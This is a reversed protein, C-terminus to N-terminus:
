NRDSKALRDLMGCHRRGSALEPGSIRRSDVRSGVPIRRCSRPIPLWRTVLLMALGMGALAVTAPEAVASSSGFNEKLISLDTLDVNGSQNTDGSEGRTVTAGFNDRLINFDTLDIRGDRNFDGPLLPPAALLTVEGTVYLQTLDWEYPSVVTFVGVPAVGNWDFLDLTHGVQAAADAQKSFALDLKGGLTTVTGAAFSITSDWADADFVLQIASDSSMSLHNRITVPIPARPLTWWQHPLPGSLGDDDRVVMHEGPKLDLGEVLGDPQILNPKGTVGGEAGRMDALRLEAEGANSGLFANVLNQGALNWGSLDDVFLGVGALDKAQYSSTSYLQQETVGPLIAGAVRSRTLNSNELNGLRANGLNAWAFNAGTAENLSGGSLDAGNLNANRVSGLKADILNAGALNANDFIGSSMEVGGLNAGALNAERFSAYAGGSSGSLNAEALNALDFVTGFLKAGSFDAGALNAKDFYADPLFSERFFSATLNQGIFDARSLSKSDSNWGSLDIGPGLTIGETGPVLHGNDWRFIAAQTVTALALSLTVLASLIALIFCTFSTGLAGFRSSKRAVSPM